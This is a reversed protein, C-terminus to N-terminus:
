RNVRQFHCIFFGCHMYLIPVSRHGKPKNYSDFSCETLRVGGPFDGHRGYLVRYSSLMIILVERLLQCCTLTISSLHGIDVVLFQLELDITPQHRHQVFQARCNRFMSLSIANLHKVYANCDM